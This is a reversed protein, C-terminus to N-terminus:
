FQKTKELDEAETEEQLQVPSQVPVPIQKEEEDLKKGFVEKELNSLRKLIDFNTVASSKPTDKQVRSMTQQARNLQEVKSTLRENDEKLLNIEKNYTEYDKIVQDLFEDVEDPDYGRMKTKFEKQLIDKASLILEAMNDGGKKSCNEIGSWQLLNEHFFFSSFRKNKMIKYIM